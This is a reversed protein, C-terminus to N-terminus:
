EISAELLRLDDETVIRLNNHNGECFKLDKEMHYLFVSCITEDLPHKIASADYFAQRLFGLTYVEPSQVNILRTAPLHTLGEGYEGELFPTMRDMREFTVASGYQKCCLITNSIVEPDVLPRTAEHIIIVDFPSSLPSLWEVASKVSKIGTKGAPIVGQLKTIGAKEAYAPIFEEWGELCVVYIGDVLPHRQFAEMTYIIVPKEKVSVFQLPINLRNVRHNGGALIVAITKRKDKPAVPQLIDSDHVVSGRMQEESPLEGTVLYDVTTHLINALTLLKDQSLNANNKELKAISSRTKYGMADAVEQQSLNLAVRRKRINDGLPM